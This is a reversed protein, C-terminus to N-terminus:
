IVSVAKRIHTRIGTNQQCARATQGDKRINDHPALVACSTALHVAKGSCTPIRKQGPSERKHGFMHSLRSTLLFPSGCQMPTSYDRQQRCNTASGPAAIAPSVGSRLSPGGGICAEGAGCRRLCSTVWIPLRSSSVPGSLTPREQPVRVVACM